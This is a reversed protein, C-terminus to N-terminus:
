TLPRGVFLFRGGKCRCFPVLAVSGCQSGECFVGHPTVRFTLTFFLLPCTVLHFAKRLSMFRGGKCHCIPVPGAANVAKQLLCHSSSFHFWYYASPRGSPMFRGQNCRCISLLRAVNLGGLDAFSLGFAKRLVYVAYLLSTSITSPRLGEEFVHTYWGKLSFYISASGHAKLFIYQCSTLLFCYSVSPWESPWESPV